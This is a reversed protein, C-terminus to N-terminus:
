KAPDAGVSEGEPIVRSVAGRAVEIVVKPAIEIMFTQEKAETITGVLGGAFLVRQGARLEAIMKLREKEKRQQPRIMMFYFIGFVLIMPILMGMGGGAAGDAAPAAQAVMWGM